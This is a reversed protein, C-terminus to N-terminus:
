QLVELHCARAAAISGVLPAIRPPSVLCAARAADRGETEAQVLAAVIAVPDAPSDTPPAPSPMAAGLAEALVSVHERHADRLRTLTAGLSPARSIAVDYADALASTQQLLAELEAPVTIPPPTPTGGFVDCGATLGVATLGAAAALGRLVGRRTVARM